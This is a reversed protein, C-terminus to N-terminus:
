LFRQNEINYDNNSDLKYGVGRPGAPEVPGQKVGTNNESNHSGDFVGM